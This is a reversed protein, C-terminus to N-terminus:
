PVKIGDGMQRDIEQDQFDSHDTKWFIRANETKEDLKMTCFFLFEQTVQTDNKTLVYGGEPEM